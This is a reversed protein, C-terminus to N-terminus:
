IYHEILKEMEPWRVAKKTRKKAEAKKPPNLIVDCGEITNDKVCAVYKAVHDSLYALPSSGQALVQYHFDRLSFKDGLNDKSYKRAKMIELQGVMYATAQGPVSQYRTVEKKAIDTDDWAYESFYKLAEDRTFGVYHLGTDVILRLARWVQGKLMGFKQMPQNEYVDTDQAILPNEAYLGWGEAFATYRNVSDLWGIVGGCSDSFHEINGQVQKPIPVIDAHKWTLPLRAEAFSCNIIDTVVPALLDANENLLWSPIMDPGSAKAPNLTSLKKFVCHESVLPPNSHRHDTIADPALPVFISMPDLFAKNITNALTTPGSNLGTDIHRLVSMPDSRTASKTGGLTKVEKWWTRPDCNRLARGQFCLIKHSVVQACSKCSKAFQSFFGSRWSRFSNPAPPYPIKFLVYGQTHHGPRAEHSNVSWEMFRPGLNELFFPVNYKASRTCDADSHSYTQVGSSPNFNPRMDVPCTPTTAKDGTFYFMPITKPELLSMVMPYLIDLQKKGLEHVEMPTMANTTFYSMIQSYAWSGNLPEGTPLYPDTPWSKNEKGDLWVYKLPLNALGSSVNSPVCHRIHEEEVYRLLQNLPEGLYTVLYEKISESINKGSHKAKWENDIEETIGTYFDPDLLPQVFRAKLVGTANYLSVDSYERKISNIGAECEEVSRIMGKRVGMKMNEIYQLIGAKHTKLKTKILEVDSVSNPKHHRGLGNYVASGHNCNEQWCFLNPGMMWDGTYYNEDYPRGFM